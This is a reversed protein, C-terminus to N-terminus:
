NTTIWMIKYSSNDSPFFQRKLGSHAKEIQGFPRLIESITIKQKVQLVLYDTQDQLALIWIPNNFKYKIYFIFLNTPKISFHNPLLRSHELFRQHRATFKIKFNESPICNIHLSYSLYCICLILGCLLVHENTTFAGSYDFLQM